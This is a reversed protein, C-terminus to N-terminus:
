YASPLRTRAGAASRRATELSEPQREAERQGADATQDAHLVGGARGCQRLRQAGAVEVRDEKGLVRNRVRRLDDVRQARHKRDLAATEDDARHQLEPPARRAENGDAHPQEDLGVPEREETLGDDLHRREQRRVEREQIETEVEDARDLEIRQANREVGLQNVRADREDADGALEREARLEAILWREEDAGAAEMRAELFDRGVNRHREIADAGAEVDADDADLQLPVERDRRRRNLRAGRQAGPGVDADGADLTSDAEVRDAIEHRLEVELQVDERVKVHVHETDVERRDVEISQQRTWPPPVDGAVGLDM